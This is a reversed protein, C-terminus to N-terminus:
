FSRMAGNKLYCWSMGPTNHVCLMDGRKGIGIMGCGCGHKSALALAKRGAAEASMRAMYTVCRFALLLRMIEEGHGTASVGASRDAYTGAGLVSSDAVRGPLKLFIGGSSTAVSIDGHRDIAVCGITGYRSALDPLRPFYKSELKKRKRRWIRKKEDTVPDHRPVSMLRAFRTANEGCLLLHDTKEMVMRAVCIPNKVNSIAGVAGFRLDSTMISADMEVEGNLTLCSGTGANFITADELITAAKEAADLSSGGGELIAYGAEVARRLGTRRRHPHDIGGSGGHAILAITRKM